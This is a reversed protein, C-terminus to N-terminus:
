MGRWGVKYDLGPRKGGQPEGDPYGLYVLCVLVESDKMGLFQRVSGSYAHLGTVLRAGLGISHAALLMNQLAAGAAVIEEQPVIREGLKPCCVLAITVSAALPKARERDLLEQSVRADASSAGHATAMVEGLKKREDGAIVLFRWPETQHHSPAWTAAELVERVLEKSVPKDLRFGRVSRRSKIADIVPNSGM